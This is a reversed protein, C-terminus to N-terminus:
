HCPSSPHLKLRILQHHHPSRLNSVLSTDTAKQCKHLSLLAECLLIWQVRTSRFIPLMYRRWRGIGFKKLTGKIRQLLYFDTPVSRPQVTVISANRMGM